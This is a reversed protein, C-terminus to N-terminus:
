GEAKGFLAQYKSIHHDALWQEASTPRVCESIMAMVEDLAYLWAPRDVRYPQAAACGVRGGRPFLLGM